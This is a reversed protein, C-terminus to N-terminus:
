CSYFDELVVFLLQVLRAGHGGVRPVVGMIENVWVWKAAVVRPCRVLFSDPQKSM